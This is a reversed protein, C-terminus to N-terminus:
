VKKGIPVQGDVHLGLKAWNKERDRNEIIISTKMTDFILM